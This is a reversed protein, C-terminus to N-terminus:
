VPKLAIALGCEPCVGSVNGTLNYGCRTCHGPKRYRRPLMVVVAVAVVFPLNWGLLCGLVYDWGLEAIILPGFSPEQLEALLALDYLLFVPAPALVLWRRLRSLGFGACAILCAVLTTGTITPMKDSIEALVLLM